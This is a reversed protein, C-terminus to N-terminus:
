IIDQFIDDKYDAFTAWGTIPVDSRILARMNARQAALGDRDIRDGIMVANDPLINHQNLIIHLGSPNPKLFELHSEGAGIIEDAFLGLADLKNRAPYDSFIAIIIGRKRLAQFLDATGPYIYRHLHRLPRKLMWENVVREIRQPSINTKTAVQKILAAEEYPSEAEGIKERLRRYAQIIRSAHIDLRALSVLALEASMVHRLPKQRYLTGDVDFIALKVNNWEFKM